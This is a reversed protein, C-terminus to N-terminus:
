GEVEVCNDKDALQRKLQEIEARQHSIVFEAAELNKRLREIEELYRRGPTEAEEGLVSPSIWWEELEGM